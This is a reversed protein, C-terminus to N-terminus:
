VPCNPPASVDIRRTAGTPLTQVAITEAPADTENRVMHVHNSDEVFMEGAVYSTAGCNRDEGDYVMVEGVAVIVLSAGPHEHWGSQGGPSIANRTVYLDSTGKTQYKLKYHDAKNKLDIDDFVGKWQQVATFGSSPTALASTTYLALGVLCVFVALAWKSRMM